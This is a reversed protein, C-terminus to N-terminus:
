STEKDILKRRYWDMKDLDQEPKGKQEHRWFYKLMNGKLYGRFEEPTLAVEIWDICEVKGSTYHLPNNVLDDVGKQNLKEKENEETQQFSGPVVDEFRVDSIELKSDLGDSECPVEWVFETGNRRLGRLTEGNELKDGSHRPRQLDSTGLINEANTSERENAGSNDSAKMYGIVNGAYDTMYITM